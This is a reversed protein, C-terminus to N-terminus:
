AAAQPPDFWPGIPKSPHAFAPDSAAVRVQTLIYGVQPGNGHTILLQRHPELASALPALTRAAFEFQGAMTLAEGPRAFANGGLSVVWPRM